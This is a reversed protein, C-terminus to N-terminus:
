KQREIGRAAVDAFRRPLLSEYLPRTGFVVEAEVESGPRLSGSLGQADVQVLRLAIYAVFSGPVGGPQQRSLRYGEVTRQAIADVAGILPADGRKSGAPWVRAVQRESLLNALEAPVQLTVRSEMDSAGQFDGVLAVEDGASVWDGIRKYVAAISGAVGAMIGTSQSTSKELLETENAEYQRAIRDVERTHDIEILRKSRVKDAVDSKLKRLDAQLDILRNRANVTREALALTDLRTVHDNMGSIRALLANSESVLGEQNRALRGTADLREKLAREEEVAIARSLSYREDLLRRDNERTQSLMTLRTASSKAPNRGSETQVAQDVVAVVADETMSDGVKALKIIQGSRTARVVRAHPAAAVVGYGRYSSKIPVFAIAGVVMALACAAVLLPLKLAPNAILPPLALRAYAKGQLAEPRILTLMDNGSM